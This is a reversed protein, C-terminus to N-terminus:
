RAAPRRQQLRAVHALLDAPTVPKPVFVDVGASLARVRASLEARGSVAVIRVARTRPDARFRRALEWGDLEPLALDLVIVDPTLACASALGERGDGATFTAYGEHHFCRAYLERTDANDEVILVRGPNTM